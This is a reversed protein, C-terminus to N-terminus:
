YKIEKEAEQADLKQGGGVARDVGPKTDTVRHNM